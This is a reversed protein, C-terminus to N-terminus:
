QRVIRTGRPSYSIGFTVMNELGSLASTYLASSSNQDLVGYNAFAAAHEGLRWTVQAGAFKANTVGNHVLGTTRDYSGDFGITLVRGFERSFNVRAMDFQAGLLYGAGGNTGHNYSLGTDGFRLRYDVSASASIRTSSPVVASDASELREPGVMITTSLPRSWQRRLGATVANTAFTVAYGPYTYRAFRYNATVRNRPDFDRSLGGNATLTDTDLGNGDPYRLIDSGGSGTLSIARGFGRWFEGNAQNSVVHTNLALISQSSPPNPNPEGIPEGTGAIGSFGAIPSEPLYAVNDDVTIGWRRWELAQSLSLRQFLGTAYTPGAIGWTYGGAYKMIFPHREEANTYSVSASPTITQRGANSSDLYAAESYRFTYQLNAAGMTAAPAVQAYAPIGATLVLTLITLKKKM